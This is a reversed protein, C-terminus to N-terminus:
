CCAAQVVCHRRQSYRSKPPGIRPTLSDRLICRCCPPSRLHIRITHECPPITLDIVIEPTLECNTVSPTFTEPRVQVLDLGMVGGGIADTLKVGDGTCHEGNTTPLSLLDPRYRGILSDAGFDAGWGGTALIVVGSEIRTLGHADVYEVGSVAGSFTDRILRVVRANNRLESHALGGGQHTPQQQLTSLEALEQFCQILRSTIAMGPFQGKLPRHTRAASHGGLLGVETLQLNFFDLLWHVADASNFTLVHGLEYPAADPRGKSASVWTDKFFAEPSDKIGKAAQM